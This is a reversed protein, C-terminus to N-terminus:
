LALALIFFATACAFIIARVQYRAKVRGESELSLAFAAISAATASITLVMGIACVFANGM